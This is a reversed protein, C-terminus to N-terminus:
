PEIYIHVPRLHPRDKRLMQEIRVGHRVTREILNHSYHRQFIQHQFQVAGIEVKPIYDALGGIEM